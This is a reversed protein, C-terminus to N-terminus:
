SMSTLDGAMKLAIPAKASQLESAARLRLRLCTGGKRKTPEESNM